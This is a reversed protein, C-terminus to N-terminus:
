TRLLGFGMPLPNGCSSIKNFFWLVEMQLTLRITHNAIFFLLLCASLMTVANQVVQYSALHANQVGCMFEMHISCLCKTHMRPVDHLEYTMNEPTNSLTLKHFGWCESYASRPFKHILVMWREREREVMNSPVFSSLLCGNLLRVMQDQRDFRLPFITKISTQGSYTQSTISLFKMKTCGALM